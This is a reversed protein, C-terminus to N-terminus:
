WLRVLRLRYHTKYYSDRVDLVVYGNDIQPVAAEVDPYGDGTFDIRLIGDRIYWDGYEGRSSRFEGDPEFIFRDGYDYPCDYDYTSVEVIRWEGVLTDMMYEDDEECSSFCLMAALAVLLWRANRTMSKMM